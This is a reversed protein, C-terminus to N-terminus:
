KVTASMTVTSTSASAPEADALNQGVMKEYEAEAFRFKRIYDKTEAKLTGAKWADEMVHMSHEEATVSALTKKLAAKKTANTEEKVQKELELQERYLRKHEAKVTEYSMGLAEVQSKWVPIAKKVRPGGANYAAVLIERVRAEDDEFGYKKLTPLLEARLQDMFIIEAKIANPLSRTGKDFDKNLGHADKAALKAYTKPMFQMVGSAGASSKAYAYADEPNLAVTVFMVEIVRRPDKELVSRDTHEILGLLKTLEPDAVDSILRNPYAYSRVHSAKLEELAQQFYAELIREGEKVIEPTHLASSYPTYVVEEVKVQPNKATGSISIIPYRIAVVINTGPRDFAFESNVGNSRKVSIDFVDGEEHLFELEKGNKLLNVTFYEGKEKQWVALTIERWDDDKKVQETIRAKRSPDNLGERLMAKGHAIAALMQEKQLIEESVATSIGAVTGTEAAAASEYGLMVLLDHRSSASLGSAPAYFRGDGMQLILPLSAESVGEAHVEGEHALVPGIGVFALSMGAAIGAIYLNKKM